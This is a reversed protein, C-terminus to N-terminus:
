LLLAPSLAKAPGGDGARVAVLLARMTSIVVDYWLQNLCNLRGCHHVVEPTGHVTRGLKGALDRNRM